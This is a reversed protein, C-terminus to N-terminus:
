KSQAQASAQHIREIREGTAPHSSLYGLVGDPGQSVEQLRSLIRGLHQPSIGRGQLYTLAFDDAETEFARSYKAEILLTPLAAALSSVSVIDGTLGAVLLMVGSDQLVRRLAHRGVVHGIEHALVAVIQDEHGALNVLDDTVVITGNPLAFANPGVRQGSRFALEFRFAPDLGRTMNAFRVRLQERRAPDLASPEFIIKDLTQMVGDGLEAALSPPLAYAMHKSLAPIGFQIGAWVAAVSLVLSLLVFRTRSELLHVLSGFGSRRQQRLVEDITDNDSAECKGGDPLYIARAMSGVRPAIDLESFRYIREEDLGLIRAEGDRYFCLRADQRESTQGDYYRVSVERM